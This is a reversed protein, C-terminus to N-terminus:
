TAMPLWGISTLEKTEQVRLRQLRSTVHRITQEEFLNKGCPVMLPTKCRCNYFHKIYMFTTFIKQKCQIDYLM